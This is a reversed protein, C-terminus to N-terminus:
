QCPVTVLTIENYRTHWFLSVRIADLNEVRTLHMIQLKQKSVCHLYVFIAFLNCMMKMLHRIDSGLTTLICISEGAPHHVM